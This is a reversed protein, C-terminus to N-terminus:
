GGKKLGHKDMIEYLTPRSVGLTDAASTINGACAELAAEAMEKELSERADKLNLRNFSKEGSDFGLDSLQIQPGEAMIVARRIKNELERINGPWGYKRLAGLAQRSFGTINRSGDELSYHLFSNALMLIDDGRERLPPVEITVVALRYFLDERFGGDRILEQLDINTAAVVRTDTAIESSGGVRRLKGDNLFRLLKVQLPPSLEGIEDLLLTGGSAMELLGVRRDVAGTFSGKEHGFLESELLNEPIAGCNIPVFEGKRRRSLNHIARAVLEKGTGNEGTILVPASSTAVKRIRSYLEEMVESSGLMGEFADEPRSDSRLRSIECELDYLNFARALVVKLVETEIPKHFFDYAGKRIAKLANKREEQGTIVLVKTRSDMEVIQELALFGEQVGGADPPLGLDLCVVPPRKEEVLRLAEERDGAQIVEYTDQLAWKMQSRIGQEDDVVLLPSKSSSM